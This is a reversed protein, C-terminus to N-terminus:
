STRAIQLAHSSIDVGTVDAGAAALVSSVHGVGCGFDLIRSNSVQSELLRGVLTLYRAEDAPFAEIREAGYLQEYYDRIPDQTM